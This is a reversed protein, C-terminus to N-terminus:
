RGENEPAAGNLTSSIVDSAEIPVAEASEAFNRPILGRTYM